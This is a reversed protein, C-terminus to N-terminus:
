VCFIVLIAHDTDGNDNNGAVNDEVGGVSCENEDPKLITKIILILFLTTFKEPVNNIHPDEGNCSM